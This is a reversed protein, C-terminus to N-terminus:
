GFEIKPCAGQRPVTNLGVWTSKKDTKIWAGMPHKAGAMEAIEGVTSALPVELYRPTIGCGSVYCLRKDAGERRFLQAVHVFSEASNSIIGDTKQALTGANECCRVTVEPWQQFQAQALPKQEPLVTVQFREIGIARGAICLGEYLLAPSHGLLYTGPQKEQSRDRGDCDLCDGASGTRWQAALLTGDRYDQLAMCDIIDLIEEPTMNKATEWGPMALQRM